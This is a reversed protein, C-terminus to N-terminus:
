TRSRTRCERRLASSTAAASTSCSTASRFRSRATSSSSRTTRSTISTCARGKCHTPVNLVARAREYDFGEMGHVAYGLLTGQLAFNEWAAGTDFSHTRSPHGNREFTTRSLFVLLAGADRAWRRNGEDLLDLFDSWHEGGRLAYLIRWPQANYSSPAWRAAELMVDLASLPIPEGTMAHPSWRDLFLPHVAHDARRMQSGKLM